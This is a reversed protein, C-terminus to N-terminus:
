RTELGLEIARETIGEAMRALADMDGQDSWVMLIERARAIDDATDLDSYWDRPM